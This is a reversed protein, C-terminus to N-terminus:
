SSTVPQKRPRVAHEISSEGKPNQKVSLMCRQVALNRSSNASNPLKAGTASWASEM